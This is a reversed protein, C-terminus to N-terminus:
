ELLLNTNVGSPWGIRISSLIGLVQAYDVLIKLVTSQYLDVKDSEDTEPTSERNVVM